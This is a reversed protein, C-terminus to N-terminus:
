PGISLGDTLGSFIDQRKYVDIKAYFLLSTCEIGSIEVKKVNQKCAPCLCFRSSRGGQDRGDSRIYHRRRLRRGRRLPLNRRYQFHAKETGSCIHILSLIYTLYEQMQTDEDKYAPPNDGTLRNSITDFVQQQKQQFKVYLNKETDSADADSFKNIDIM